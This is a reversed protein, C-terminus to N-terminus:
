DLLDTLFGKKPVDEPNRSARYEAREIEAKTFMLPRENGGDADEVPIVFYEKNANSFKPRKSNWVRILRGLKVRADDLMLVKEKNKESM